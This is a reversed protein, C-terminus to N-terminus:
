SALISYHGAPDGPLDDEMVLQTVELKIQDSPCIDQIRKHMCQTPVDDSTLFHEGLSSESALNFKDRYVM